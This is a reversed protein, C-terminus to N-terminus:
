FCNNTGIIWHISQVETVPFSQKESFGCMNVGAIKVLFDSPTDLWPTDHIEAWSSIMMLEFTFV